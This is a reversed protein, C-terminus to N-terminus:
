KAKNDKRWARIWKRITSFEYRKGNYKKECFKEAMKEDSTFNDTNQGFATFADKKAIRNKLNKVTAADKNQKTKYAIQYSNGAYIAASAVCRWARLEDGTKEALAAQNCHSIIRLALSGVISAKELEEDTPLMFKRTAEYIAIIREAQKSANKREAEILNISDLIQKSRKCKPFAELSNKAMALAVAAGQSPKADSKSEFM